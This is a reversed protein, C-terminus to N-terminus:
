LFSLTKHCRSARRSSAHAVYLAAVAASAHLDAGCRSSSPSLLSFPKFLSTKDGHAFFALQTPHCLSPLPTIHAHSTPNLPSPTADHVGADVVVVVVSLLVVVVVAVAVLVVTVDAGGVVDMVVVAVLPLM